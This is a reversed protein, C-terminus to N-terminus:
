GHMLTGNCMHREDYLIFSCIVMVYVMCGLGWDDGAMSCTMQIHIWDFMPAWSTAGAQQWM